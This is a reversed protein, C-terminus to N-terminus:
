GNKDEQFLVMGFYTVTNAGNIYKLATRRTTNYVDIGCSELSALARGPHRCPEGTIKGCTECLGCGGGSLHMAGGELVPSLADLLKQGVAVHRVKAEAMGEVDYSDELTGITQYLLARDYRRVRAMLEEIPGVDPPCTYCRGYVGCSNAECLARFSASLTIDAQGILAAKAAGCDLAIQILQEDQM